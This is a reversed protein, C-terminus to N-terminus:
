SSFLWAKIGVKEQLATIHEKSESIPPVESAREQSVSSNSAQSNPSQRIRFSGPEKKILEPCLDWCRQLLPQAGRQTHGPSRATHSRWKRQLLGGQVDHYKCLPVVPYNYSLWSSLPTNWAGRRLPRTALLCPSGRPSAESRPRQTLLSLAHTSTKVHPKHMKLGM